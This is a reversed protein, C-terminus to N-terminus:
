RMSDAASDFAAVAGKVTSIMKQRSVVASNSEQIEDTGLRQKGTSGWSERARSIPRPHRNNGRRTGVRAFVVVWADLTEDNLKLSREGAISELAGDIGMACAGKRCSLPFILPEVVYFLDRHFLSVRCITMEFGSEYDAEDFGFGDAYIGIDRGFGPCIFM